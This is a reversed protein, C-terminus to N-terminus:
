ENFLILSQNASIVLCGIFIPVKDRFLRSLRWSSCFSNRLLCHRIRLVIPIHELHYDNPCRSYKRRVEYHELEFIQAAVNELISIRVRNRISQRAYESADNVFIKPKPFRKNQCISDGHNTSNAYIEDLTTVGHEFKLSLQRDLPQHWYKRHHRLKSEPSGHQRTVRGAVTIVLYERQLLTGCCDTDAVDKGSRNGYQSRLDILQFGWKGHQSEYGNGCEGEDGAETKYSGILDFLQGGFGLIALSWDRHVLGDFWLGGGVFLLVVYAACLSRLGRGAM